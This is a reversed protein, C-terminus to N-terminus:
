GRLREEEEADVEDIVVDNMDTEVENRKKFKRRFSRNRSFVGEVVTTEKEARERIAEALPRSVANYFHETRGSAGARATRGIRHLYGVVNTSFEFEVVLSVDGLDLGRAGLDTCFLLRAEGDRFMRLNEKRQKAEVNKHLQVVAGFKEAVETGLKSSIVDFARACTDARSAFVMVKDESSTDQELVRALMDIRELETDLFHWKSKLRSSKKHIDETQIAKMQPYRRRMWTVISKVKEGTWHPYTAGIFLLRNRNMARLEGNKRTAFPKMGPQDLIREVDRLFSGSLLMDAEDIIIMKDSSDPKESFRFYNLLTAPTAIVARVAKIDSVDPPQGGALVLHQPADPFYKALLDAVQWCLERSPVLIIAKLNVQPAKRAAEVYPLLYALTKGSGTEAGVMMVDDLDDVPPLPRKQVHQEEASVEANEDAEDLVDDDMKDSEQEDSKVSAKEAEDAIQVQTAYESQFALGRLMLPILAAQVKTPTVISCSVLREVVDASAGLDNFSSGTAFMGDDNSTAVSDQKTSSARVAGPASTMLLRTHARRRNHVVQGSFRTGFNGLRTLRSQLIPRTWTTLFAMEPVKQAEM